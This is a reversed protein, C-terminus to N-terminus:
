IVSMEARTLAGNAAAGDFGNGWGGWGFGRGGLLFLVLLWLGNGGFMGDDQTAARIDALSYGSDM